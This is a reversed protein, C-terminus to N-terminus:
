NASVPTLPAKSSPQWQLFLLVCLGCIPVLMGTRLSWGSAVLGLLAPFIAAGLGCAALAIGLNRASLGYGITSSLILPFIPGLCAGEVGCALLLVIPSPFAVLWILCAASGILSLRLVQGERSANFYRSMVFRGSSLGIWFVSTIWQARGLVGLQYRTAFLPLWNGVCAEVGGYILFVFICSLAPHWRRLGVNKRDLETVARRPTPLERGKIWFVPLLFFFAFAGLRMSIPFTKFFVTALAPSSIAGVCFAAAVGALNAARRSEDGSGVLLNISSMLQGLGFGVLVLSAATAPIGPNRAVCWAFLLLGVCASWSGVTLTRRLQPSLLMTGAFSGAFLCSVLLGAQHDSLRWTTELTPLLPGLFTAGAGAFVFTMRWLKSESGVKARM